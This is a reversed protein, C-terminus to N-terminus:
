AGTDSNAATTEPADSKPKKGTDQWDGDQRTVTVRTAIFQAEEGNGEKRGVVEVKDGEKVDKITMARGNIYVVTEDTYTGKLERDEGGKMFKMTVVRNTLDVSKVEGKRTYTKSSGGKSSCGTQLMCCAVVALLTMRISFRISM